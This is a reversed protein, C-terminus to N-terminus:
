FFFSLWPLSNVTCAGRSLRQHAFKGPHNFYKYSRRLGKFSYDRRRDLFLCAADLALHSGPRERLPILHLRTSDFSYANAKNNNDDDDDDDDDDDGRKDTNLLPFIDFINPSEVGLPWTVRPRFTLQNVRAVGLASAYEFLVSGFGNAGRAGGFSRHLSGKKKNREQHNDYPSVTSIFDDCTKSSRAAQFTPSFCLFIGLLPSFCRM